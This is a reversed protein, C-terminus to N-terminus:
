SFYGGLVTFAIVVASDLVQVSYAIDPQHSVAGLRKVLASLCAALKADEYQGYARLIQPDMQKGQALEDSTSLLMSEM